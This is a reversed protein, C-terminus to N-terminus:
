RVLDALSKPVCGCTCVCVGDSQCNACSIRLEGVSPGVGCACVHKAADTSTVDDGAVAAAGRVRM